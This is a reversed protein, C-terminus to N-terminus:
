PNRRAPAPHSPKPSPATADSLLGHCLVPKIPGWVAVQLANLTNTNTDQNARSRGRPPGSRGQLSAQGHHTITQSLAKAMVGSGSGPLMDCRGYGSSMRWLNGLSPTIHRLITNNRWRREKGAKRECEGAEGSELSGWVM